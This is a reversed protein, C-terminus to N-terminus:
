QQFGGFDCGACHLLHVRRGITLRMNGYRDVRFTGSRGGAFGVRGTAICGSEPLAHHLSGADTREARALYRRVDAAAPRFGRCPPEDPDHWRQVGVREVRVRRVAALHAPCLRAGDEDLTRCGQAAAALALMLGIAM